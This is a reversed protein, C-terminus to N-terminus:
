DEDNDDYDKLAEGYWEWNDVGGRELAALKRDRDLLQQYQEKSITANTDQIKINNGTVSNIIQSISEDIKSKVQYQVNSYLNDYLKHITKSKIDDIMEQEADNLAETVDKGFADEYKKKYDSKIETILKKYVAEKIEKKIEDRIEYEDKYTLSIKNKMESKVQNIANTTISDFTMESMEKIVGLKIGEFVEDFDFEFKLEKSL